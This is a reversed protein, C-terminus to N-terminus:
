EAPIVIAGVHSINGPEYMENHERVRCVFDYVADERTGYSYHGYITYMEHEGDNVQEHSVYEIRDEKHVERLIFRIPYEFGKRGESYGTYAILKGEM